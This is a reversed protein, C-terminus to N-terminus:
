SDSVTGLLTEQESGPVFTSPDTIEKSQVQSRDSKICSLSELLNSRQQGGKVAHALVTRFRARAERFAPHVLGGQMPLSSNCHNTGEGDQLKFSYGNEDRALRLTVKAKLPFTGWSNKPWRMPDTYRARALALWGERLGQEMERQARLSDKAACLVKKTDQEIREMGTDM